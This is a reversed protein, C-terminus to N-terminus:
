PFLMVQGLGAAQATVLARSGRTLLGQVKIPLQWDGRLTWTVLTWRQGRLGGDPTLGTTGADSDGAGIRDGRGDL